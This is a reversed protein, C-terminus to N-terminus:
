EVTAKIKEIDLKFRYPKNSKSFILYQSPINKLHNRLTNESINASATIESITAGIDSFISAQLLINCIINSNRKSLLGNFGNHKKILMIMNKYEELKSNLDNVTHQIAKRIFKYTGIIFPTLDGRNFDNEVTTFLDYYEKRYKKIIVSLQLAVLPHFHKALYLSTIFRAMRGNGNYFPHIYGFLYHFVAIRTFLPVKNDNLFLLATDMYAIIKEEPMVGMHITKQTEGIISVSNKRFINGDPLDEPDERAVEDSLIEDFLNRVDQSTNLSISKNDIIHIYKNVIGGLRYTHRLEPPADIAAQIEKRTSHVGEIDNSSKIEDILRSYLFQNIGAQPVEKLIQLLTSHSSLIDDQLLVIDEPTCYFMKHSSNRNYPKLELPIHRTTISNFRSSYESEYKTPESYYIKTLTKYNM